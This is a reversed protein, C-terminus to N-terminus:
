GVVGGPEGGRVDLEVEVDNDARCLRVYLVVAIMDGLESGFDSVDAVFDLLYVSFLLVLPLPLRRESIEALGGIRSSYPVAQRLYNDEEKRTCPLHLMQLYTVKRGVKEQIDVHLEGAAIRQLCFFATSCASIMGKYVHIYLTANHCRM